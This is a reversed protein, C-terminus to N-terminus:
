LYYKELLRLYFYAMPVAFLLSDIRDLIGGHGPMFNGSDKLGYARKLASEFLDGVTAAFIIVLALGLWGQLPFFPLQYAMVLAAVLTFLIGGILGEWTKKPSVRPFFPHRGLSIGVLYAFTDLTWILIYVAVLLWPEFLDDFFPLQVLLFLPFGIYFLGFFSHYLANLSSKRPHFVQWLVLVALLMILIFDFLAGQSGSLKWYGSKSWLATLFLGVTMFNPLSVKSSEKAFTHWESLAAMGLFSAWFLLASEGSFCALLVLLVYLAGSVSRLLLNKIV